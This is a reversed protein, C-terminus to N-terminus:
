APRASAMRWGADSAARFLAANRPAVNALTVVPLASDPSAALSPSDTSEVCAAAEDLGEEAGLSLSSIKSAEDMFGLSTLPKTDPQAGQESALTRRYGQM